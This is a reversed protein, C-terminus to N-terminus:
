GVIRLDRRPDVFQAVTEVKVKYVWDLASVEGTSTRAGRQCLCGRFRSHGLFDDSAHILTDGGDLQVHAIEAREKDHTGHRM